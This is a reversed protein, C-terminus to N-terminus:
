WKIIYNLALYPQINTHSQGGGTSASTLSISHSHGPDSFSIAIPGVNVGSTAVTSNGAYSPVGIPTGGLNNGNARDYNHAHDPMDASIGTASSGTNGSVGHTHGPIQTTDLTVSEVGGGFGLSYNSLGPGQGAGLPVRSRMDPVNFTTFSGGYIIGVVGYLRPYSAQLYSAGDCMLWGTPAASGAYMMISGVPPVLTGGNSFFDTASTVTGSADVQFPGSTSVLGGNFTALGDVGLTGSIDTNGSADVQFPGSTSVLGGNFTALGDVVLTGSIDTNGSADVQFPGSTSVLGGNFTALGDVVLTGSIDTNGSADVRFPGENIIVGGNFIALGEVTLTNAVINEGDFCEITSSPHLITVVNDSCIGLLTAQAM